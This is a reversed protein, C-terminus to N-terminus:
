RQFLCGTVSSDLLVSFRTGRRVRISEKLLSAYASSELVNIHSKTKWFWAREISWEGTRLVDNTLVSEFGSSSSEAAKEEDLKQLACSFSKAFHMADTYVASGKTYQGQIRVHQHGGACKVTMKISDLLYVLLRFEKRHISGFQCSAVVAGSCGLGLLWKWAVLWAM